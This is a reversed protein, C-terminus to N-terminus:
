LHKVMATQVIRAAGKEYTRCDACTTKFTCATVELADLLCLAQVGGFYSKLVCKTHEQEQSCGAIAQWQIVEKSMCVPRQHSCVHKPCEARTNELAHM